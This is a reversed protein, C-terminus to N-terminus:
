YKIFPLSYDFNMMQQEGLANYLVQLFPLNQDVNRCFRYLTNVVLEFFMAELKDHDVTGNEYEGILRVIDPHAIILFRLMATRVLLMQIYTFSDPMTYFWERFLCNHLYRTIYHEFSGQLHTQLKKDCASFQEAWSKGDDSGKLFDFIRLALQSTQEGPFQELKLQLISHIVILAIPEDAQYQELFDQWSSFSEDTQARQLEKDMVTEDFPECGRHYFRSLRNAVSALAFLRTELPEHERAVISLFTERVRNFYKAYVDDNGRPLERTIPYQPRPLDGPSFRSLTSLKEESLCLRAVEPCSLAGSMEVTDGRRVIVRPFFACVNGLPEVGHARHIDCLGDSGLMPCYGNEAMTIHAYDYDGQVPKDNVRIYTEFLSQQRSDEGMKEQLLDYHQRDLKIEWQQCCTDPCEDGLCRFQRFYAPTKYKLAM